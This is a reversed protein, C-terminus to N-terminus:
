GAMPRMQRRESLRSEQYQLRLGTRVCVLCKRWAADREDQHRVQWIKLKLAAARKWGCDSATETEGRGGVLGRGFTMLTWLQLVQYSCPAKTAGHKLIAGVERV